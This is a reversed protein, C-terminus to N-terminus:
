YFKCCSYMWLKLRNEKKIKNEPHRHCQTRWYSREAAESSAPSRNPFLNDCWIDSYSDRLPSLTTLMGNVSLHHHASVELMCLHRPFRDVHDHFIVWYHTRTFAFKLKTNFSTMTKQKRNWVTVWLIFNWHRRAMHFDIWAIFQCFIDFDAIWKLEHDVDVLLIRISQVDSVAEYTISNAPTFLSENVFVTTWQILFNETWKWVVAVACFCCDGERRVLKRVCRGNVILAVDSQTWYFFIITM